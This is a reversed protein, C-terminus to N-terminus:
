QFLYLKKTPDNYFNSAMTGLASTTKKVKIYIIDSDFVTEDLDEEFVIARAGNEIAKGIFKHGDTEEGKQAVFIFGKQVKRSDLAIGMVDLDRFNFAKEIKVNHLIKELNM